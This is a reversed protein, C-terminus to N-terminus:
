ISGVFNKAGLSIKESVAFNESGAIESGVYSNLGLKTEISMKYIGELCHM